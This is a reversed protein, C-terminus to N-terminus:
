DVTAEPVADDVSEGVAATAEGGVPRDAGLLDRHLRIGVEGRVPDCRRDGAEELREVQVVHRDDAVVRAARHRLDQDGAVRLPDAAEDEGVAVGVVVERGADELRHRRDRRKGAPHRQQGGGEADAGEGPGGELGERLVRDRGLQDGGPHLGGQM